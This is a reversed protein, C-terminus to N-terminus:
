APVAAATAQRLGAWQALALALVALAQALVFAVGLGNPAVLPTALLLVSDAIWLLNIAIVAGVAGRAPSARQSLWAVIATWALMVVGAGWLLPEPLRLCDALFGAASILLAGMAGSSVADALLAYRLLTNAPRITAPM